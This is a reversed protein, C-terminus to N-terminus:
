PPFFPLSFHVCAMFCSFIYSSTGHAAIIVKKGSKIEPAISKHWFPLV